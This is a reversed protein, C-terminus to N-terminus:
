IGSLFTKYDNLYEEKPRAGLFVNTSKDNLKRTSKAFGNAQVRRSFEGLSVAKTGTMYTDIWDIYCRHLTSTAVLSDQSGNYTVKEIFEELFATVNDNEARYEIESKKMSISETWQNQSKLRILGEIAWNLIGSKEQEFIKTYEIKYAPNVPFTHPFEVYKWRTYWAVSKDAVHPLNNASFMLRCVSTFDFSKGHKIEGHLGKIDGGIISKVVGTDSIYKTDIDGCVNILKNQLYVTEFRDTLRHLPISVLADGFLSKLTDLFMSKGNSGTGYLFVATRFSTDPILCLGIFEQLFKISNADPVWETLAKLWYPCTKKPNYEVPLKLTTFIKATWPLLTKDKWKFIGNNLCIIDLPNHEWTNNKISDGLDFIDFEGPYVLEAKLAELCENTTHVSDWAAKGGKETDILAKRIESKVYDMDLMKWPGLNEDCRFFIGMETSYKWIYGQSKQSFLFGKIFPTPRIGVKKAITEESRAKKTKAMEERLAISEIITLLENDSLPPDCFNRNYITLVKIVEEKTKGKALESGVRRTIGDNREGEHLVRQWDDETVPESKLKDPEYGASIKELIWQPCDALKIERPSYGEKWRYQQGSSHMSPPLVTQQGECLIAFEEHKGKGAIKIKKTALGQPLRYLLRRGNGTIFEWTKPINGKSIALLVVEGERGDIDLGVMNSPSGLPVGININANKDRADRFWDIIDEKATASWHNWQKILPSKGPSKCKSMHAVAMGNHTPSCIPIVPLGISVLYLAEDRISGTVQRNEEL